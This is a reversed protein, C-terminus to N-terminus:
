VLFVAYFGDFLRGPNNTSTDISKQSSMWIGAICFQMPFLHSDSSVSVRKRGSLHSETEGKARIKDRVEMVREDEGQIMKGLMM